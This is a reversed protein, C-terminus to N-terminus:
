NHGFPDRDQFISGERKYGAENAPELHISASRLGPFAEKLIKKTEHCIKDHALEVSAEPDVGLHFDLFFSDETGRSRIAHCFRVGNVSMVLYYVEMPNIAQADALQKATPIIIEWILRAIFLGIFITALGDLWYWGTHKAVFLSVIVSGSIWLDGKTESMDALLLQSKLRRGARGEYVITIINVVMSVIMVVITLQGIENQEPNLLRLFGTKLVEFCIISILGVILLTFIEEFRDYGYSHKEDPKKKAMNVGVLAILNSLTDGLSHLGDAVITMIGTILGLGIKILCVSLNLFLTVILVRKVEGLRVERKM